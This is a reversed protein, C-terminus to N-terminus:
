GKGKLTVSFKITNDIAKNGLNDFFNDSGYRVEYKTRDVEIIATASLAGDTITVTAPFTVENTIGKITLDATVKDGDVSKISLNATKHKETAFFDESNLHGDLKKAMGGSLDTTTITTMDITFKGGSIQGNSVQLGGEKITVTGTHSSGTVKQGTWVVSSSTSDITYYGDSESIPTFAVLVLFAMISSLISFQKKMNMSQKLNKYQHKFM